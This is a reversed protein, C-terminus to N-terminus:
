IFMLYNILATTLRRSVKREPFSASDVKDLASGTGIRTAVMGMWKWILYVRGNMAGNVRLGGRNQALQSDPQKFICCLM